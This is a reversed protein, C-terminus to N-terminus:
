AAKADADLAAVGGEFSALTAPDKGAKEDFGKVAVSYFRDALRDHPYIDRALKVLTRATEPKLAKVELGWAEEFCILAGNSIVIASVAARTLFARRDLGHPRPIARRSM